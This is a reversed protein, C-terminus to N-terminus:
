ETKEKEETTLIIAIDEDKDPFHTRWFPNIDFEVYQVGPYKSIISQFDKKRQGVLDFRLSEKNVISIIELTDEIQFALNELSEPNVTQSDKDVYSINLNKINSIYASEQDVGVISTELIYKEFEVSNFLVNFLSGKLTLKITGDDQIKESTELSILVSLAEPYITQEPVQAKTKEFLRASLEQTLETIIKNKEEEPVVFREGVFGGEIVGITEATITEFKPSKAEQFGILKLTQKETENYSDGPQDAYIEVEVTGPVLTGDKMTQGPVKVAEKTKYIRGKGDVLRTDIRLPQAEQSHNNSIVVKGYAREEVVKKEGSTVDRSVSDEVIMTEFTLEKSISKKYAIFRENLPVNEITPTITVKANTFFVSLGFFLGIILIFALYWIAKGGSHNNARHSFRNPSSIPPRPIQKPSSSRRYENDLKPTPKKIDHLKSLSM